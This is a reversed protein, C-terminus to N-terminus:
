QQEMVESLKKIEDATISNWYTEAIYTCFQKFVESFQEEGMSEFSLSQPIRHMCPGIGPIILGIEDCAIGAEIQLRKLLSHPKLYKFEDINEIVLRAFGGHVLSNFKPNRPKAITVFVVDDFKYNRSALKENVWQAAPVICGKKIRFPFKEM